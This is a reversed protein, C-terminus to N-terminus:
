PSIQHDPRVVIVPCPSTRILTEAVSGLVVNRIDEIFGTGRRGVAILDAGAETAYAVTLAKPDGRRIETTVEIGSVDGAAMVAAM